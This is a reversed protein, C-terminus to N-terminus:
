LTEMQPENNGVEAILLTGNYATCYMVAVDLVYFSMIRGSAFLVNYM